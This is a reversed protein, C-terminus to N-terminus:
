RLTDISLQLATDVMQLKKGFALSIQKEDM